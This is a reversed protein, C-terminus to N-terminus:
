PRHARTPVCTSDLMIGLQVDRMLYRSGARVYNGARRVFVHSRAVNIREPPPSSFILCPDCIKKYRVMARDSTARRKRRHTRNAGVRGYTIKKRKKVAFPLARPSRRVADRERSSRTCPPHLAHIEGGGRLCKLTKLSVWNAYHSGGRGFM